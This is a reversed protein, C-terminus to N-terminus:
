FNAPTTWSEELEKKGIQVRLEIEMAESKIYTGLVERPKMSMSSQIHRTKSYTVGGLFINCIRLNLLSFRCLSYVWLM